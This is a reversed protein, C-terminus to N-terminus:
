RTECAINLRILGLLNNEILCARDPAQSTPQTPQETKPNATPQNEVQEVRSLDEGQGSTDRGAVSDNQRNRLEALLEETKKIQAQIDGPQEYIKYRNSSKCVTKQIDYKVKFDVCFRM